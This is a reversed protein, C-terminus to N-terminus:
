NGPNKWGKGHPEMSHPDRHELGRDPAHEMRQEHARSHEHAPAAQREQARELSRDADPLSQRNSSAPPQSAAPDAPKGAGHGAATVTGGLALLAAGLVVSFIPKKQM